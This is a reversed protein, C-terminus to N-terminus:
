RFYVYIDHNAKINTLPYTTVAGRNAGNDIVSRVSGATVTLTVSAGSNVTITSTSGGNETVPLTPSIATGTVEVSGGAAVNLSITYTDPVFTVSITHDGQVNYFIYPNTPYQLPTTDISLTGMRYGADPTITFTKNTGGIVSVSGSPSISGNAGASATIIYTPNPAFTASITTHATINSIPYSSVAGVSSLTGGTPGVMVDAISYGANPTITYTQNGGANVTTVGAPSIKGGQGATATIAYTIPKLYVTITHDAQINALSYSTTTGKQAGNDIISSVQYGADPNITFTIDSGKNVTFTGSPTMSGHAPVSNDTNAITATITYADAVFTASISHDATVNYFPYPNRPYDQKAGDIFLENLRYGTDPTITFAGNGGYPVTLAGSPTISGGPGATATIIFSANPAFTAAITMGATVTSITYSGVAGVSSLTGGTPGVMVDAIRYGASPSITCLSSGNHDVTTPNCSISGNPGPSTTVNYTNVAFTAAISMDATVTSITYSSLAGVSSLSGGTPGVMVNDIHYGDAPTIICFSNSNVDVVKPDCAICGHGLTLGAPVISQGYEQDTGTNTTGAGWAVATWDNKLAITHFWGAAIATVNTLDAPVMTQGYTNNGWAVITGDSKLAVTHLAGAGIAIVNTLGAPVTTQGYYNDGWAVVTGDSKLAVTHYAGAAIAIVNTLGAPVTTQENNNSGWALVNGGITLALTHGYGAAIATVSTLGAPVMTQGYTNDGWAVITGDSKLAVTHVAGAGIAIVNTLGAPVTAQGYYNYGWAVVAGDSKLAVTHAWGAAVAPTNASVSYRNILNLGAPVISQGYEPDTGTNTTGAGWAVVTGDSKLAVLHAAGAAIATCTIGAPVTTQGFENNGWTVVTGDSKLAVTYFPGAAIATVTYLGAPVTSQGYGDYGWAVVTGGSKLAVTHHGGAAIAAVGTLNAPVTTQGESNSGWAVVTGDSKLAVTHLGGAAIATVGTLGAPVTTEGSINAGWAVVTGDSKLAVTHLYGAAIATVGTLGAPVTTQGIFNSGWAVVTGDSKLAVTHVDGAAIAIVGTLGAPVISQGFEPFTGTNTTGAGWAVVTGDSKLAVTHETGAAIAPPSYPDANGTGIFGLLIVGAFFFLKLREM